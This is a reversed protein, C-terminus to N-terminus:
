PECLTELREGPVRQTSMRTFTGVRIDSIPQALNTPAQTGGNIRPATAATRTTAGQRSGITLSLRHLAGGLYHVNRQELVM